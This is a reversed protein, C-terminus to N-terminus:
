EPQMNLSKAITRYRAVESAYFKDAEGLSMPKALTGGMIEIEKRMSPQRLAEHLAKSYRQAEADSVGKPLVVASWVDFVFDKVLKTENMTPINPFIPHREPGTYAIAKFKGNQIMGAVPGGFPMFVMDIQGGALDGFIQQAGKYPVHLLRAGTEQAFREAVLHYITGRGSTGYTLEKGGPKKSLAILEALNNAPLDPRTILMLYTSAVPGIMRFDEAVYRTRLALPTQTLEMATAMMATRGDPKADRVKQAGISGSAGSINEIVMTQGLTKQMPQAVLRATVDAQGGAPYAVITSIPKDSQAQAVASALAMALVAAARRAATTNM